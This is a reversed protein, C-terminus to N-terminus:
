VPTALAARARQCLDLCVDFQREAARRHGEEDLHIGDGQLSEGEPDAMTATFATDWYEVHLGACFRSIESDVRQRRKAARKAAAADVAWAEGSGPAVVVLYVGERRLIARVTAQATEIVEDPEFHSRGPVWRQLSRRGFRFVRNHALWPTAAVLLGARAAAKGVVGLRQEMRVPLSEYLFWFASIPFVVLEPNYREMWSDVVQPLAPNPWVSRATVEVPEGLAASLTGQLRRPFLLSEEINRDGGNANSSLLGLIRVAGCYALARERDMAAVQIPRVVVRADIIRAIRTKTRIM